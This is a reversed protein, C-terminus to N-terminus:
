LYSFQDILIQQDSISKRLLIFKIRNLVFWPFRATAELGYLFYNRNIIMKLPYFILHNVILNVDNFNKIIIFLANRKIMYDVKAANVNTARHYHIVQSEPIFVNKFGYKWARYGLDLDESYYPAIIKEDFGGLRYFLHKNILASGGGFYLTNSKKDLFRQDVEHAIDLYGQQYRIYTKGSEERRKKPDFFFIQSSLSFIKNNLCHKYLYNILPAFTNEQVLMDNNIIYVWNYRAQKISLNYGKSFGYNKDLAVLRVKKKFLRNTQLMKVTEDTSGNDVVIIEYPVTLASKEVMKILNTLTQKLLDKKNWTLMAISIGDLQLHPSSINIPKKLPSM